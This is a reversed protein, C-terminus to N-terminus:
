CVAAPDRDSLELVGPYVLFPLRSNPIAGDDEFQHREPHVPRVASTRSDGSRIPM